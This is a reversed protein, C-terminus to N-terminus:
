HPLASPLYPCKIGNNLEESVDAEIALSIQFEKDVDAPSPWTPCFAPLLSRHIAIAKHVTEDIKVVKGQFRCLYSGDPQKEFDGRRFINVWSLIDESESEPDEPDSLCPPGIGLQERLNAEIDYSELHEESFYQTFTENRKVVAEYSQILAPGGRPLSEFRPLQFLVGERYAGWNISHDPSNDM